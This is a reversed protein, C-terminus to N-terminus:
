LIDSIPEAQNWKSDDSDKGSDDNNPEASPDSAGDDNNNLQIDGSEDIKPEPSSLNGSEEENQINSSIQAEEELVNSTKDNDKDLNEDETNEGKRKRRLKDVNRILHRSVRNAVDPFQFRIGCKLLRSNRMIAEAILAEVRHGIREQQQGSVRVEVLGNKTDALCEFLRALTDPSIKNGELNLSKLSTNNELALCLTAVSFDSIECNVVSLKTLNNNIRLSDFLDCITQEDRAEAVNNLNVDKLEKDDKTLRDLVVKPHVLNPPDPEYYKLPDAYAEKLFIQPNTNLIDAL